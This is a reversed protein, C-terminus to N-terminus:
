HSDEREARQDLDGQDVTEGARRFRSLRLPHAPPLSAARQQERPRQRFSM